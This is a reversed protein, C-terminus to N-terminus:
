KIPPMQACAWWDLTLTLAATGIEEVAVIPTMYDNPWPTAASIAPTTRYAAAVPKGDIWPIVIGTAADYRFGAKVYTDAVMTAQSAITAVTGSAREYFLDLNSTGATLRGFGLLSLTTAFVDSSTIPIATAIPAVGAAGALGIFFNGRAATIGSVKFRAEFVLDGSIGPIVAFPFCGYPATVSGGYQLAVTSGDTTDPTLVIAGLSTPSVSAPTPTLALNVISCANTEYSLYNNGESHYRGVNSAVLGAFSTFDDVMAVGNRRDWKDTVPELPLQKWLAASIWRSNLDDFTAKM